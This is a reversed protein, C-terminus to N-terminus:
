ETFPAETLYMENKLKACNKIEVVVDIVVDNVFETISAHCSVL